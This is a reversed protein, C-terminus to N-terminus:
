VTVPVVPQRLVADDDAISGWKAQDAGPALPTTLTFTMTRANPDVTASAVTAGAPDVLDAKSGNALHESFTLVIPGTYPSQVAGGSAPSSSVLESHASVLGPVVLVAVSAAVVLASLRGLPHRVM